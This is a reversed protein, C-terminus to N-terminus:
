STNKSCNALKTSPSSNSQTQISDNKLNKAIPHKQPGWSLKIWPNCKTPVTFVRSVKYSGMEKSRIAEIAAKM